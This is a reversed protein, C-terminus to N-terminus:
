QAAFVDGPLDLIFLLQNFTELCLGQGIQPLGSQHLSLRSPATARHPRILWPLKLAARHL